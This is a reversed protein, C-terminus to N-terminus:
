NAKFNIVTIEFSNIKKTYKDSVSLYYEFKAKLEHISKEM